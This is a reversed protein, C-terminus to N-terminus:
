LLTILQLGIFVVKRSSSCYRRLFGGTRINLLNAIKAISCPIFQQLVMTSSVNQLVKTSQPSNQSYRKSKEAFHLNKGWTTTANLPKICLKKESSVMLKTLNEFFDLSIGRSLVALYFKMLFPELYTIIYQSFHKGTWIKHSKMAATVYWM